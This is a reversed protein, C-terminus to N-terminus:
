EEVNLVKIDQLPVVQNMATPYVYNPNQAILSYGDTSSYNAFDPIIGYFTSLEKALNILEDVNHENQYKLWFKASLTYPSTFDDTEFNIPELHNESTASYKNAVLDSSLKSANDSSLTSWKDFPVSLNFKNSPDNVFEKFSKAAKALEPYIRELKSMYLENVSGYSFTLLLGLNSFGDLGSGIGDYDYGWMVLNFVPSSHYENLFNESQQPSNIIQVEIRDDLSNWTNVISEYTAKTVNTYSGPFRVPIVFQIKQGNFQPNLKYFKDLLTKMRAKVADYVRSKFADENNTDRHPIKNLNIETLNSNGDLDFSIRSGTTSDVGYLVNIDEAHDRLTDSESTKIKNDPALGISWANSRRPASLANAYKKWIIALDLLSRFEAGMGVTSAELTNGSIARGNNIDDVSTNWMLKAYADNYYAQKPTESPKNPSVNFVYNKLIDNKSVIKYYSIPYLESNDNIISKNTDNMGQLSIRSILGNQFDQFETQSFDPNPNNTYKIRLTKISTPSNKFDEDFYHTNLHYEDVLTEPNYGSAYYHGSFLTNNASTGYWYYALDRALGHVDRLKEKLAQVKVDTGNIQSIVVPDSAKDVAYEHPFPVFSYDKTLNEIFSSFSTNSSDDSLTNVVFYSNGNSDVNVTQEKDSLKDTNINFLKLIYGNEYSTNPDFYKGPKQILESFASDLEASGGNQRRFATTYFLTRQYGYYFDDATIRYQTKDGHNNVWYQNPRIRFKIKKSKNILNSFELSNISKPDKSKADIIQATYYKFQTTGDDYMRNPSPILEAKDNDFVHERLNGQEDPVVLIIADALGLKFQRTAPTIVYTSKQTNLGDDSVKTITKIESQGKFSHNILFGSNIITEMTQSSGSLLTSDYPFADLSYVSNHVINLTKAKAWAYFSENGVWQSIPKNLGINNEILHSKLSTIRAPQSSTKPNDNESKGPDNKNKENCAASLGVLLTTSAILASSVLLLKTKNKLKM